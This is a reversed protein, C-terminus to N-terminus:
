SNLDDIRQRVPSDSPFVSIFETDVRLSIWRAISTVTLLVAVLLIARRHNLNFQQHQLSQHSAALTEPFYGVYNGAQVPGAIAPLSHCIDFEIYGRCADPKLGAQAIPSASEASFDVMQMNSIQARAQLLDAPKKPAIRPLPM